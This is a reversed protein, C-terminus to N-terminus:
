GALWAAYRRQLDLTDASGDVLIPPALPRGAAALRYAMYRYAAPYGALDANQMLRAFADSPVVPDLRDREYVAAREVMVWDGNRREIRDLFRANSSLDTEIGDIVQRVMIVTNTEAIARDRNVGVVSPWILHKSRAGQAFSQRSRDVFDSFRGRFWSVAIQGEPDFIALLDDWRGQDRYFGWLQALEACRAKDVHDMTSGQNEQAASRADSQYGNAPLM